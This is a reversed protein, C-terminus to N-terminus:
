FANYIRSLMGVVAGVFFVALSCLIIPKDLMWSLLEGGSTLFWQFVETFIALTGSLTATGDDALAPTAAIVSVPAVAATAVAYKHNNLTAFIRNMM